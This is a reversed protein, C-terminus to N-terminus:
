GYGVLALLVANGRFEALTFPVGALDQLTFDPASQGPMLAHTSAAAAAVIVLTTVALRFRRM